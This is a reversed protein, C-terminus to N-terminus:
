NSLHSFPTGFISHLKNPIEWQTLFLMSKCELVKQVDCIDNYKGSGIVKQRLSRNSHFVMLLVLGFGVLGFWRPSSFTLKLKCREPWLGDSPLTLAPLWPLCRSTPVSAASAGCVSSGLKCAQEGRVQEVEKTIYSLVVQGPTVSGAQWPSPGGGTLWEDFWNRGSQGAPWHQASLKRLRSERM